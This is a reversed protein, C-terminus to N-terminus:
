KKAKGGKVEEAEPSAKLAKIEDRDDTEYAAGAQIVIPPKGSVGRHITLGGGSRSKFKPM